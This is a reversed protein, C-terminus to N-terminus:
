ARESRLLKGTQQGNADTVQIGPRTDTTDAHSGTVHQDHDQLSAQTVVQSIHTRLEHTSKMRDQTNVGRTLSVFGCQDAM